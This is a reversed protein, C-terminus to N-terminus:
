RMYSKSFGKSEYKDGLNQSAFNSGSDRAADNKSELLEPRPARKNRETLLEEEQLTM